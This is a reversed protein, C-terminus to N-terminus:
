CTLPNEIRTHGMRSLLIKYHTQQYTSCYYFSGNSGNPLGNSAQFTLSPISLTGRWDLNGYKLETSETYIIKEQTDVQRNKNTDLFVIFGSNWYSAQCNIKNQSPCIVVNTHHIAAHSKALQISSILKHTINKIEQKAMIDHFYPLAMTMMIALIALTVILEVLTFGKKQIPIM